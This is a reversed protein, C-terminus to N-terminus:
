TSYLFTMVAKQMHLRNEAEDFVVSHPGDIVGAAVEQGRHAPLCHMFIFKRDALSVLSEDVQYGEFDKLRKETEDEQGMSVWTDTYVVHAGAVAEQASRTLVIKSGTSEAAAAAAKVYLPSPEYGRPTAVSMNIGLKAAAIMLSNTMNNGDGIYALKLGRFSCFNEQITMMDAMVQCPHSLDSLGNIVPVTAYKALDLIDQHEFVRAVIGDVYRSLTRAIDATPERKGLSIDDPALYISNGGLQFIGTEFSVRTRNSPKQFILAMSKGKLLGSSLARDAKLKGALSLLDNLEASSFDNLSIFDRKMM